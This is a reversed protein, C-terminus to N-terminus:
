KQSSEPKKSTSTGNQGILAKKMRVKRKSVKLITSKSTSTSAVTVTMTAEKIRVKLKVVQLITSISRMAPMTITMTKKTMTINLKVRRSTTTTTTQRRSTTASATSARPERSTYPTAMIKCCAKCSRNPIPDTTTKTIKQKTKHFKFGDRAPDRGKIRM